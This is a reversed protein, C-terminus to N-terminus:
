SYNTGKTGKMERMFNYVAHMEAHFSCPCGHDFSACKTRHHNYGKSLIRGGKGLLVAGHRNGSPRTSSMGYECMKVCENIARFM